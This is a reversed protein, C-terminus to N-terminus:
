YGKVRNIQNIPPQNSKIRSYNDVIQPVAADPNTISAIHPTITIAQHEWFPHSSPLPEEQFVDLLAGSLYGKELAVLLDEEKIHKGRAVNILYTGPLCKQFFKDDLLEETSNTLPLMCVLVNICKLFDELQDDYYYQFPLKKNSKGFGVVDFGLYLLKDAIDSGLSGVGMIGVRIELEPSSMDWLKQKQQVQYRLFQRHYNLVGMVVYNTMSRTIQPNIIRTIPIGVPIEPDKLIHDVGVGMSCILKLNPFHKLIGHPHNWLVAVEVLEPQPISPYVQISLESDLSNFNKVWSDVNRGPSIIVLGM